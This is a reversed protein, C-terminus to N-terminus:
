WTEWPRCTPTPSIPNTHTPPYPYTNTHTSTPSITNTHTTLYPHTHPPILPYPHTRTPISSHPSIPHNNTHSPTHTLPHTYPHTSTSGFFSRLGAVCYFMTSANRTAFYKMSFIRGAYSHELERTKMNEQM